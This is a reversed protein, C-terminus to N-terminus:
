ERRRAWSPDRDAERDATRGLELQEFQPALDVGLLRYTARPVVLEAVAEVDVEVVVDVPDRPMRTEVLRPERDAGLDEHKEAHALTEAHRGLHLVGGDGTVTLDHVRQERPVLWAGEAGGVIVEHLRVCARDRAHRICPEPVVARRQGRRRREAAVDGFCSRRTRTAIARRLVSSDNSRPRFRHLTGHPRWRRRTVPRLRVVGGRFAPVVRSRRDRAGRRHAAASPRLRGEREVQEPDDSEAVVKEFLPTRVGGPAIANARIGVPGYETAVYRTLADVGAKSVDYAAANSYAARGHVSSISVIAGPSRQALYARVAVSCGWYCGLLNVDLVRRVDEAIPAHLNTAPMIGANNVWAGLDAAARAQRSAEELVGTDAVDGEVVAGRGGLTERAEAALAKGQEIGVVFYGDDRLRELIALGIGQGCGTM